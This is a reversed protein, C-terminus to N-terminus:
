RQLLLGVAALGPLTGKGGEGGETVNVRLGLVAATAIPGRGAPLQGAALGVPLAFTNKGPCALPADTAAASFLLLQSAPGTTGNATRPAVVLEISSIPQALSGRNLLLIQTPLAASGPQGTRM